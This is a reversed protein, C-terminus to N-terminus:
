SRIRRYKQDINDVNDVKWSRGDSSVPQVIFDWDFVFCSKVEAIDDSAPWKFFDTKTKIQCLFQVLALDPQHVELVQGIYYQDDYYVAVWVGQHRFQFTDSKLQGDNNESEPISMSLKRKQNCPNYEIDASEPSLHKALRKIIEPINGSIRITKIQKRFSYNM